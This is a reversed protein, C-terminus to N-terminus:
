RAGVLRLPLKRVGFILASSTQRVSDGAPEIRAYRDLMANLTIRSEARALPSGLCYHVGMGFGVHNQLNRELRFEDPEEFQEPDRNAAGYFVGVQSGELIVTGAVEVDRTALRTLVQVPSEYRLTEEIMPEVLSRDDKLRQWLDPRQALLNLMNGMLNTTTENGAILLLISFGLVEWDQLREGEVEAEVLASILDDAAQERREAAVKGLYAVMEGINKMREEQSISDETTLLADTWRKFTVYEDRPIGLLTAIVKVPLPITYSDVLEVEEGPFSDLLENAVTTIWPELEAVRKPTFAKNVLRRFRTHRPPDDTILVLRFPGGEGQRPQSSFTEHDRLASYVHDFKLLGFMRPQNPAEGSGFPSGLPLPSRPRLERYLPYPDAITEPRFLAQESV